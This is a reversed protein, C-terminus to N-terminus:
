TNYQKKKNDYTIILQLKKGGYESHSADQFGIPNLKRM